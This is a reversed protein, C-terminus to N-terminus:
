SRIVEAYVGDVTGVGLAVFWRPPGVFIEVGFRYFRVEALFPIAFWLRRPTERSYGFANGVKVGDGSEGVRVLRVRFAGFM